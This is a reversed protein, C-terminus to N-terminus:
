RTVEAGSVGAAGGAPTESKPCWIEGGLAGCLAGLPGFNEVFRAVGVSWAEASARPPLYVLVSAHPPSKGEVLAGHFNKLYKV